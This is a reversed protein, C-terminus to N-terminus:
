HDVVAEITDTVSGMAIIIHDADDTKYGMLPHLEQGTLSAWEAMATKTHTIVDDLFHVRHSMSGTMFDPQNQVPSSWGPQHIDVTAPVKARTGKDYAFEWLRECRDKLNDPLLGLVEHLLYPHSDKDIAEINNNIFSSLTRLKEPEIQQSNITLFNTVQFSRGKAGWLLDQAVSQPKIRDSPHGHYDKMLETSPLTMDKQLHSTDFGDMGHVFPTMALVSARYAVNALVTSETANSSFLIPIRAVKAAAYIDDHGAMVNLSHTTVTRAAVHLVFGTLRKGATAVLSEIAYLLGQSSTANATLLGGIMSAGAVASQASHEGETEYNILWEGWANVNGGARYVDVIEAIETSPTIPYGIMIACIRSIVYAVAYNGNNVESIQPYKKSSKAPTSSVLKNNLM